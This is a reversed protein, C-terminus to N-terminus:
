RNNVNIGLVFNPIDDDSKIRTCEIVGDQAVIYPLGDSSVVVITGMQESHKKPHVKVQDLTIKRNQYYFFAGPYPYNQSRVLRSIYNVNKNFNILGDKPKRKPWVSVQLPDQEIWCLSRSALMSALQKALRYHAEACKAFLTTATEEKGVYIHEQLIVGGADAAEELLFATVGTEQLGKIITWPIPARGRGKPLLTPHMGICGHANAHREQSHNVTKPIDLILSPVLESWGIVILYDPNAAEIIRKIRKSKVSRTTTYPLHYKEVLSSFDYFGVTSTRKAPDLSLLLSICFKGKIFDDSELLGM